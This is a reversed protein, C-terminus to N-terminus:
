VDRKEAIYGLLLDPFNVTMGDAGADYVSRMIEENFIGWARVGLGLAHWKDVLESTVEEGKPCIEYAGLALLADLIDDDYRTALLGIRLEPACSKFATLYDLMFSTVIVKDELGYKFIMDAIKEEIGGVKIELAITIDRYAFHSLFDELTPIKDHLAGHYVLFANLEELTYDAVRGVEGTVRELTDDHFLVLVGDKTVQVDTEIGNAGMQMGMYFSMMTNEPCYESAGRHAYTIFSSEGKQSITTATNKTSNM